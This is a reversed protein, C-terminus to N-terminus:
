QKKGNTNVRRKRIFITHTEENSNEYLASLNLIDYNNLAVFADYGRSKYRKVVQFAKEKSVEESIQTYWHKECFAIRRGNHLFSAVVM